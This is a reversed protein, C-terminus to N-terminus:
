IREKNFLKETPTIIIKTFIGKQNIIVKQSKILELLSLFTLIHEDKSSGAFLDDFLIIKKNEYLRTVVKEVEVIKEEITMTESQVTVKLPLNLKKKNLMRFFSIYLIEKPMSTPYLEIISEQFGSLNAPEKTFHRQRNTENNKLESAVYKYKKYEILQSVLAERPDEGSDENLYDDSYMLEQKPLLMKSKIAMLTAAMVMYEGAVDLELRQMNHIYTLYQSTVESIPIDYIDIKLTKILHLLLDLPGEFVDLQISLESIADESRHEHFLNLIFM